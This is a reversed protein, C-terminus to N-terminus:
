PTKYKRRIYTKMLIGPPIVNEPRLPRTGGPGTVTTGTFELPTPNYFFVKDGAKFTLGARPNNALAMNIAEPDGAKHPTQLYSVSGKTSLQNYSPLPDTSTVIHWNSTFDGSFQYSVKLMDNFMAYIIDRTRRTQWSKAKDRVRKAAIANVKITIM